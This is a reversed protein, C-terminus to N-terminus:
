SMISRDTMGSNNNSFYSVLRDRIPSKLTRVHEKPDVLLSLHKNEFLLDGFRSTDMASSEFRGGSM